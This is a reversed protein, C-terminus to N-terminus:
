FNAPIILVGGKCPTKIISSLFCKYLDNEKYQNYIKKCKSKAKPLFPPNTIVFYDDYSPPFLLTDRSEIWEAKSDIDFCKIQNPKFKKFWFVLDGEGAFPEVIKVNEPVTLDQLIYNARKTFHQGLKKKIDNSESNAKKKKVPKELVNSNQSKEILASKKSFYLNLFAHLKKNIRYKKNSISIYFHTQSTSDVVQFSSLIPDDLVFTQRKDQIEKYVTIFNKELLGAFTQSIEFISENIKIFYNM